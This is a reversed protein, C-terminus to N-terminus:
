DKFIETWTPSIIIDFMPLVLGVYTWNMNTIDSMPPVLSSNIFNVIILVIKAIM